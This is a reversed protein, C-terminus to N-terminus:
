MSRGSTCGDRNDNRVTSLAGDEFLSALHRALVSRLSDSRPLDDGFIETVALLGDLLRQPVGEAARVIRRLRAALPDRVDIQVGREDTGTVYRMWAAVGLAARTIPLERALRDRITALLRQPLKQSGDMAIQWTRHKLASNAFRDLLADRYPALHSSEIPQGDPGSRPLQLQSAEAIGRLVPHVDMLIGTQRRMTSLQNTRCITLPCVGSAAARAAPTQGRVARLHTARKM